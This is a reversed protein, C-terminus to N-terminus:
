RGNYVGNPADTVTYNLQPADSIDRVRADTERKREFV